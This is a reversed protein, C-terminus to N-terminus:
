QKYRSITVMFGRLDQHPKITVDVSQNFEFYLHPNFGSEFFLEIDRIYKTKRFAVPRNRSVHERGNHVYFGLLMTKTKGRPTHYLYQVPMNFFINVVENTGEIDTSVHDILGNAYLMNPLCLYFILVQMGQRITRMANIRNM